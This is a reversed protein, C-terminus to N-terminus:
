AEVLTFKNGEQRIGYGNYRHLMRMASRARSPADDKPEQGVEADHKTVVNTLQELTAGKRLATLVKGQLSTERVKHKVGTFPWNIMGQRAELAKIRQIGDDKTKFRKVTPEGAAEALENHRDVLEQMTLDKM